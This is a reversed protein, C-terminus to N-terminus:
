APPCRVYTHSGHEGSVTLKDGEVKFKLAASSTLATMCRGAVNWENAGTPTVSEFDCHAEFQDYGKATMLMPSDPDDQDLSCQSADAAWNGVFAALTPAAPEAVAAPAEVAAATERKPAAPPTCAALAVAALAVLVLRGM